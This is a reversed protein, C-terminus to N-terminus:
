QLTIDVDSLRSCLEAELCLKLCLLVGENQMSLICTVNIKFYQFLYGLIGSCGCM